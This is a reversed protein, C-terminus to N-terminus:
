ATAPDCYGGALLYPETEGLSGETAPARTRRILSSVLMRAKRKDDLSNYREKELANPGSM